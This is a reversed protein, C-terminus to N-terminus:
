FIVYKISLHTIFPNYYLECLDIWSVLKDSSYRAPSVTATAVVHPDYILLLVNMNCKGHQVTLASSHHLFLIPHHLARVALSHM